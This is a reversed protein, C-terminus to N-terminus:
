SEISAVRNRGQRKAEYLMDDALKLVAAPNGGQTSRVAATGMSVTVVGCPSDAHPIQLAAISERVSEAFRAVSAPDTDTVIMVFEEGGYRAAVDGARRGCTQLVAAVKILCADGAQHGYHDNFQKFYDIDLMIVAFAHRHRTARSWEAVLLEDFRRRNALGTLADTVSLAALKTNAQELETSYRTLELNRENLLQQSARLEAEAREQVMLLLGTALLMLGVIASLFTVYQIENASFISLMEVQGSLTTAIRLLFILVILAFGAMLIFQGRGHTIRRHQFLIALAIVSQISFVIGGTVVRLPTNDILLAFLLAVVPVPGWILLPSLRRRQFRVIGATFLAFTLSLLTNAAVISLVDSVTGRLMYLLYALTHTVLGASWIALTGARRYAVAAIAGALVTSTVIIIVFLTAIDLKM